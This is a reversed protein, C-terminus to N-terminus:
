LHFGKLHQHNRVWGLMNTEEQTVTKNVVPEHIVREGQKNQVSEGHLPTKMTKKLENKKLEVLILLMKTHTQDSQEIKKLCGNFLLVLVMLMLM